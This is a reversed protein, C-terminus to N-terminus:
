LKPVEVPKAQPRNREMRPPPNNNDGERPKPPPPVFTEVWKLGLPDKLERQGLLAWPTGPHDRLVRELLTTAEKAAEAAKDTLHIERDPVMRWTNSQPNEFKPADRKIRACAQNYEMCRIKMAMLRGRLLDYHAQWRRSTERDRLRATNAITPEGPGANVGLAEDVTYQIRAVLAQNRTMYDKFNPDEFAPFNMAPMEPLSQQCITAARMVARRLPNKQLLAMYHERSVWDPKYERMGVPDFTIRRGGLRTIFYIGGTAGAMRSLAFPGFGADLLDYQPGDYWFPLRIGELAATEPGQKM